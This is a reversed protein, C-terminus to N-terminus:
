TESSSNDRELNCHCHNAWLSLTICVMERIRVLGHKLPSSDVHKKQGCGEWQALHSVNPQLMVVRSTVWWPVYSIWLGIKTGLVHGAYKHVDTSKEKKQYKWLRACNSLPTKAMSPTFVSSKSGLWYFRSSENGKFEICFCHVTWIASASISIM